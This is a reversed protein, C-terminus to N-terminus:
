SAKVRMSGKSGRMFGKLGGSGGGLEKSRKKSKGGPGSGGNSQSGSGGRKVITSLGSSIGKRGRGPFAPGQIKKVDEVNDDEASVRKRKKPHVHKPSSQISKGWEKRHIRYVAM